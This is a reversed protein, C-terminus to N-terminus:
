AAVKGMYDVGKTMRYFFYKGRQECEVVCGNAILEAKATNPNCVEAGRQIERTSHWQGDALFHYARQLRQSKRLDAAHIRGIPHTTNASKQTM